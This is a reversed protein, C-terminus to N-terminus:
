SDLELLIKCQNSWVVDFDDQLMGFMVYLSFVATYM